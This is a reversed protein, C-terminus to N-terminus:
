RPGIELLLQHPLPQLFSTPAVDGGEEFPDGFLWHLIKTEEPSPPADGASGWFTLGGGGVAGWFMPVGGGGGELHDPLGWVEESGEGGGM